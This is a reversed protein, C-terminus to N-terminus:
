TNASRSMITRQFFHFSHKVPRSPGFWRRLDKPVVTRRPDQILTQSMSIIIILILIIIIITMITIIKSTIITFFAYKTESTKLRLIQLSNIQISSKIEELHKRLIRDITKNGYMTRHPPYIYFEPQVEWNTALYSNWQTRNQNLVRSRRICVLGGYCQM